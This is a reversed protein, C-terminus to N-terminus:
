FLVILYAINNLEHVDIMMGFKSDIPTDIASFVVFFVFFYLKRM